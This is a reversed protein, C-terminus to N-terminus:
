SGLGVRLVLYVAYAGLLFHVFQLAILALLKVAETHVYDEIVVQVGLWSHWFLGVLLLAMLVTHHPQALWARAVDFDAGMLGIFSAAFWLGLPILAIATLRQMWWHNVGEKASGLGRALKVPTRYKM